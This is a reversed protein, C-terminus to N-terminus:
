DRTIPNIGAETLQKIMEQRRSDDIGKGNVRRLLELEEATIDEIQSDIVKRLLKSMNIGIEDVFEKQYDEISLTVKTKTM